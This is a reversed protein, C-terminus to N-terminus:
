TWTMRLVKKKNKIEDRIRGSPMQCGWCRGLYTATGPGFGAYHANATVIALKIREDQVARINDAWKQM